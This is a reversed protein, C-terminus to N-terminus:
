QKRNNKQEDLTVKEEKYTTKRNEKHKNKKKCRKEQHNEITIQPQKGRSKEVSKMYKENRKETTKM